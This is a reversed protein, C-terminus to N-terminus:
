TPGHPWPWSSAPLWMPQWLRAPKVPKYKQYVPDNSYM